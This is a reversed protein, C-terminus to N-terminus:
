ITLSLSGEYHAIEKYIRLELNISANKIQSKKLGYVDLNFFGVQGIPINQRLDGGEISLGDAGCVDMFLHCEIAGSSINKIGGRIAFDYMKEDDPGLRHSLIKLNNEIINSTINLSHMEVCDSKEAAPIRGLNHIEVEYVCAFTKAEYRDDLSSLYISDIFIMDEFNHAGGREIIVEEESLSSEQTFVNSLTNKIVTRYRVFGVPAASKNPICTNLNLCFGGDEQKELSVVKLDIM